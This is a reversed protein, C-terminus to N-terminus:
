RGVKDDNGITRQTHEVVRAWVIPTTREIKRIGYTTGSVTFTDRDSLSALDARLCRLLRMRVEQEGDAYYGPEVEEPGLIVTVAAGAGGFPTHTASEGFQSSLSPWANVQVRTDFTSAM